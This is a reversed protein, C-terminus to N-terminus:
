KRQPPPADLAASGSSSAPHLLGGAICPGGGGGFVGAAGRALEPQGGAPSEEATGFGMTPPRPKPAAPAKSPPTGAM